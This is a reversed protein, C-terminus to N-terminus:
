VSVGKRLFTTLNKRYEYLCLIHKFMEFAEMLAFPSFYRFKVREDDNKGVHISCGGVRGDTFGDIRSAYTACQLIEDFVRERGTKWDILIYEERNGKINNRIFLGDATGAFRLDKDWLVREGWVPALGNGIIWDNVQDIRREYGRIDIDRSGTFYYKNFCQHLKTGYRGAKRKVKEAENIGVKGYWYLLESPVGMSGIITTVSPYKIGDIRYYGKIRKGIKM